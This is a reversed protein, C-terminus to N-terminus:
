ETGGNHTIKSIDICLLAAIKRATKEQVMNSNLIVHIRQKGVGYMKAFYRISIERKDLIDVIKESNLKVLNSAGEFVRDTIEEISLGLASAIKLATSEKCNLGKLIGSLKSRCIGAADALEGKRMDIEILRIEIKKGNLFMVRRMM